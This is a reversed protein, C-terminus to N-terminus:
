VLSMLSCIGTTTNLGCNFNSYFLYISVTNCEIPNGTTEKPNNHTAM